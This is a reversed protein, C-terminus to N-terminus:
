VPDLVLGTREARDFGAVPEPAAMWVVSVRDLGGEGPLAFRSLHPLKTGNPASRLGEARSVRNTGPPERVGSPLGPLSADCETGSQATLALRLRLSRDCRAYRCLMKRVPVALGARQQAQSTKKGEMDHEVQLHSGLAPADSGPGAPCITSSRDFNLRQTPVGKSERITPLRLALVLRAFCCGHSQVSARGLQPLCDTTSEGM